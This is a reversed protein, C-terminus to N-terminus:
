TSDQICISILTTINATTTTTTNLVNLLSGWRKVVLVLVSRSQESPTGGITQVCAAGFSNAVQGLWRRKSFCIYYTYIHMHIDFTPMTAIYVTSGRKVFGGFYSEISFVKM